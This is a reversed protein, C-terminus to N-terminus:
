ENAREDWNGTLINQADILSTLAETTQLSIAGTTSISILSLLSALLMERKVQVSSDAPIPICCDKAAAVILAQQQRELDLEQALLTNYKDTKYNATGGALLRAKLERRKHRFNFTLSDLNRNKKHILRIDIDSIVCEKLRLYMILLVMNVNVGIKDQLGLLHAQNNNHAYYLLSYQWFEDASILTSNQSFMM